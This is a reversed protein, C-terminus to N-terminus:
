TCRSFASQTQAVEPPLGNVTLINASQVGANTQIRITVESGIKLFFNTSFTIDGTPTRLIPNGTVDRNLIFGSLISGNSIQPPTAVSGQTTVTQAASPQSIAPPPLISILRVDVM